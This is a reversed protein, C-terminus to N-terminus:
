GLAPLAAATFLWWIVMVATVASFVVCQQQGQLADRKLYLHTFLNHISIIFHNDDHYIDSKSSYSYLNNTHRHKYTFNMCLNTLLSFFIFSFFPDPVNRQYLIEPIYRTHTQLPSEVVTLCDCLFSLVRTKTQKRVQQSYSHSVSHRQLAPYQGYRNNLHRLLTSPTTFHVTLSTSTLAWQPFFNM